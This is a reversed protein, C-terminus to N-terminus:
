QSRGRKKLDARVKAMIREYEAKSAATGIAIKVKRAAEERQAQLVVNAWAVARAKVGNDEISIFAGGTSEPKSTSRGMPSFSGTWGTPTFYAAYKELNYKYISTVSALSEDSNYFNDCDARSRGTSAAFERQARLIEAQNGKEVEIIGSVFIPSVQYGEVLGQRGNPNDSKCFTFRREGASAASAWLSLGVLLVVRM